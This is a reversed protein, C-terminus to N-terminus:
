GPRRRLPEEPLGDPPDVVVRRAELDIELLFEDTVPLQREVDGQAIVLRDQLGTEIGTIVGWDGGGELEVRCGVLDVLLVEDDGLELDDRDVEVPQGRLADAQDRDDVGQLKVLCAGRVPRAAEVERERGGVLISGARELADSAPNHLAVRVEGRLGHPRTVM